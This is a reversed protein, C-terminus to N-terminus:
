GDRAYVNLLASKTSKNNIIIKCKRTTTIDIYIYIYVAVLTIAMAMITSKREKEKTNLTHVFNEIEVNEIDKTNFFKEFALSGYIKQTKLKKYNYVVM